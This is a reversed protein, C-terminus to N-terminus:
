VTGEADPRAGTGLSAQVHRRARNIRSGVTGAPIGLATGVEEYTLEQWAFLLLADRDGPELELLAGVLRSAAQLADVRDDARDFEDAAGTTTAAVRTYAVLQRREARKAHHILNTAIGYLWPAATPHVPVFSKRQAFARAFTEATLEEALAGGARRSIYGHIADVHRDFLWGFAEPDASSAAILAADAVDVTPRADRSTASM